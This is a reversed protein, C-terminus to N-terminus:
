IMLAAFNPTASHWFDIFIVVQMSKYPSGLFVVLLECDNHYINQLYTDMNLRLIEAEHYKDFFVREKGLQNALYGAVQAVLARYEGPYSLGVQFRKQPKTTM